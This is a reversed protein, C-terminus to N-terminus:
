IFGIIRGEDRAEGPKSCIREISPCLVLSRLMAKVGQIVQEQWRRGGRRESCEGWLAGLVSGESLEEM